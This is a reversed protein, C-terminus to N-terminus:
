KVFLTTLRPVLADTEYMWGTRVVATEGNIGPIPMDVAMLQGFNNVELVKAPASLIGEQVRSALIDANTSNYGLASEFVRAKHGGKPHTPDLAYSALKNPEIVAHEANLLAGSESTFGSSYPSELQPIKSYRTVETIESIAGLRGIGLGAAISAGVILLGKNDMVQDYGAPADGGLQEAADHFGEVNGNYIGGAALLRGAAKSNITKAAQAHQIPADAYHQKVTPAPKRGQHDNLCHEYIDRVEIQFREGYTDMFCDYILNSEDDFYFPNYFQNWKESTDVGVMWGLELDRQVEDYLKDYQSYPKRQYPRKGFRDHVGQKRDPVHLPIIHQHYELYDLEYFIAARELAEAPTLIFQIDKPALERCADWKM